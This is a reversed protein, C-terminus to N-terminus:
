LRRSIVPREFFLYESEEYLGITFHGQCLGEDYVGEDCVASECVKKKYM